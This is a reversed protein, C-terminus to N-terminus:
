MQKDQASLMLSKCIDLLWSPCRSMDLHWTSSTLFSMWQAAEKKFPTITKFVRPTKMKPIDIIIFWLAISIQLNKDERITGAPNLMMTLGLQCWGGIINHTCPWQGLDLDRQQIFYHNIITSVDSVLSHKLVMQDESFLKKGLVLITLFCIQGCLSYLKPTTPYTYPKIYIITAIEKNNCVFTVTIGSDPWDYASPMCRYLITPICCNLLCVLETSAEHDSVYHLRQVYKRRPQSPEWWVRENARIAVDYNAKM